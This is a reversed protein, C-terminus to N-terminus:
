NKLSWTKVNHCMSEATVKETMKCHSLAEVDQLKVKKCTDGSVPSAIFAEEVTDGCDLKESEMDKCQLMTETTIEEITIDEKELHGLIEGKRM